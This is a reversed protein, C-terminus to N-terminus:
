AVVRCLLGGMWAYFLQLLHIDLHEEVGPKKAPGKAKGYIKRAEVLGGGTGGCPKGGPSETAARHGPLSLGGVGVQFGSGWMRRLSTRKGHFIFIDSEGCGFHFAPTWLKAFFGEQTCFSMFGFVSAVAIHLKYTYIYIYIYVCIYLICAHVCAFVHMCVVYIYIHKNVSTLTVDAGVRGGRPLHRREAAAQQQAAQLSDVIACDLGAFRLRRGLKVELVHSRSVYPAALYGFIRM